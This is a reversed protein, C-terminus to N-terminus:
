CFFRLREEVQKDNSEQFPAVVNGGAAVGGAADLGLPNSADVPTRRGSSPRSGVFFDGDDEDEDYDTDDEDDDDDDDEDYGFDDEPDYDYEGDGYYEGNDGYYDTPDEEENDGYNQQDAANNDRNVLESNNEEDVVRPEETHGISDLGTKNGTFFTKGATANSWFSAPDVSSDVIGKEFVPLRDM